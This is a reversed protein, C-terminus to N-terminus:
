GCGGSTRGRSPWRWKRSPRSPRLDIWRQRLEAEREIVLVQGQVSVKQRFAGVDNGVAVDQGEAKCADQPLTVRWTVHDSFPSAVM